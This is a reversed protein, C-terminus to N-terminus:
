GRARGAPALWSGRGALRLPPAPGHRRPYPVMGRWIATRWDPGAPGPCAASPVARGPQAPVCGPRARGTLLARAQRAGTRGLRVAALAASALTRGAIVKM